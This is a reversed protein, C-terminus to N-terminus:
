IKLDKWGILRINHEGIIRLMEPDTVVMLDFYRQQSYKNLQRLEEDDFGPHIIFQSYGPPCTKIAEHYVAKKEELNEASNDPMFLYDLFPLKSSMLKEIAQSNIKLDRKAIWKMTKETPKVLMPPINYELGLKVYIELYKLSKFLAGQHSDLHTPKLGRSLVHEIQARLEAEVHEPQAHAYFDDVSHHLYGEPTVLTPVKAAGAFPCWPADPYECTLTLHIGMEFQPHDKFFNAIEDFQHCPVMLSTSTVFGQKLALIIARNVSHCLGGDDAHVILFRDNGM